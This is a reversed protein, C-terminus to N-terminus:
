KRLLSTYFLLLLSRITMCNREFDNSLGVLKEVSKRGVKRGIEFVRCITKYISNRMHWIELLRADKSFPLSNMKITREISAHWWRWCWYVIYQEYRITIGISATRRLFIRLCMIRERESDTEPSQTHSHRRFWCLCLLVALTHNLIIVVSCHIILSVVRRCHLM